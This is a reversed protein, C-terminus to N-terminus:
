SADQVDHGKYRHNLEKMLDSRLRNIVLARERIGGADLLGIVRDADRISSVEPNVVVIADDAAVLSNRFGKEIGAPCDLLIYDFDERLITILKVIQEPEIADKDASQAAALLYLNTYRKDRVLAQKMRCRGQLVDLITYIVRSELGLVIDLNRLGLDMDILLTQYGAMALGAGLNAVVTTKGVGGKGSTVVTVKHM